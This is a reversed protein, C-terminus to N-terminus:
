QIIHARPRPDNAGKPLKIENAFQELTDAVARNGAISLHAGDLTAEKTTMRALRPTADIIPVGCNEAWQTLKRQILVPRSQSIIGRFPVFLILMNAGSAAVLDHFGDLIKLNADEQAADKAETTGLDQKTMHAYHHFVECIACAPKAFFLSNGVDNTTSRRQSLDGDNLVLIVTSSGFTGRSEVFGLENSPGWGSASANLVEVPHGIIAPLERHLIETFLNDQDVQTTGYTISDGVLMLRYVGRQKQIAFDDSRMGYRNTRTHVFFRYHNQNPQMFYGCAPDPQLLVPDGVGITRLSGEALICAAALALGVKFAIRTLNKSTTLKKSIRQNQPVIVRL